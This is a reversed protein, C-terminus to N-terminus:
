IILIAIVTGAFFGLMRYLKKNTNYNKEEESLEKNAIVEYLEIHEIQGIMDTAGLNLGFNYIANYSETKLNFEKKTKESALEWRMLPSNQNDASFEEKFFYMNEFNSCDIVLETIDSGVYRLKVKLLALFKVFDEWFLKRKRLNEAKYFGFLTSTILFLIGSFIKLM